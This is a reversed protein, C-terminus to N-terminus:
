IVPTYKTKNNNNNSSTTSSPAITSALGGEFFGDVDITRGVLWCCFRRSFVSNVKILEGHSEDNNKNTVENKGDVGLFILLQLMWCTILPTKHTKEKNAEDVQLIMGPNKKIHNPDGGMQLGHLEAM